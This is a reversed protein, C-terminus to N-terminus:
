AQNVRDNMKVAKNRAIVNCCHTQIRRPCAVSKIESNSEQSGRPSEREFGSRGEEKKGVVEEWGGEM